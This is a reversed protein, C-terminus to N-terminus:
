GRYRDKLKSMLTSVGANSMAHNYESYMDRLAYAADSNGKNIVLQRCNSVFGNVYYDICLKEIIEPDFGFMTIQYQMSHLIDKEIGLERLVEIQGPWAPPSKQLFIQILEPMSLTLAQLEDGPYEGANLKKTILLHDDAIKINNAFWKAASRVARVNLFKQFGFFM